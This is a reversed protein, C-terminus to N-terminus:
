PARAPTTAPDAYESTPTLRVRINREVPTSEKAWAAKAM